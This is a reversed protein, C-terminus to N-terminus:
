STSLEKLALGHGSRKTDTRLMHYMRAAQRREKLSNQLDLTWGCHSVQELVIMLWTSVVHFTNRLKGLTQESVEAWNNEKAGQLHYLRTKM